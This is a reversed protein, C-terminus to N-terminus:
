VSDVDKYIPGMKAGYLRKIDFPAISKIENVGVIHQEMVLNNFNILPDNGEKKCKKILNFNFGEPYAHKKIARGDVM